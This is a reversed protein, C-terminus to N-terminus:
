GCSSQSRAMIFDTSIQNGSVTLGVFGMAAHARTDPGTGIVVSSLASAALTVVGGTASGPIDGVSLAADAEGGSISLSGSAARIRTGTTTVTVAAGAADGGYTAGKASSMLALNVGATVTALLVSKKM